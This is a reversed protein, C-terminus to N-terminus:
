DEKVKIDERFKSLKDLARPNETLYYKKSKSKHTASSIHIYRGMKNNRLYEAERKTILIM